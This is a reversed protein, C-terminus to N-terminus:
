HSLEALANLGCDRLVQQQDAASNLFLSSNLALVSNGNKNALKLIKELKPRNQQLSYLFNLRDFHKQKQSAMEYANYIGQRL